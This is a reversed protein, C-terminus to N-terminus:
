GRGDGVWRKRVLVIILRALLRGFVEVDEASGDAICFAFAINEEDIFTLTPFKGKTQLFQPLPTLNPAQLTSLHRRIFHRPHQISHRGHSHLLHHSTPLYAPQPSTNHTTRNNNHHHIRSHPTSHTTHTHTHTHTQPKDVNYGRRSIYVLLPKKRKGLM